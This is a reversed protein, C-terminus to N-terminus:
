GEFGNTIPLRRDRGSGQPHDEGRPGVPPAQVRQPGGHPGGAGGRGARFGAECHRRDGPGEGRLVGPDPRAPRVVAPQRHGVPQPAVGGVPAQCHHGRPDVEGDRNRWRALEYVLTKSVDELVAYGGVMDGYLTSYGVSMESKSGTARLARPAQRARDPRQGAADGWQSGASGVVGRRVHYRTTPAWGPSRARGLRRRVSPSCTSAGNPARGRPDRTRLGVPVGGTKAIAEFLISEARRWSGGKSPAVALLFRVGRAERRRCQCRPRHQARHVEQLAVLAGM